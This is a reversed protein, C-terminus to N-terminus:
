VYDLQLLQSSKRSEKKGYSTDMPNQKRHANQNLNSVPSLTNSSIYFVTNQAKWTACNEREREKGRTKSRMAKESDFSHLEDQRGVTECRDGGGDGGGSM